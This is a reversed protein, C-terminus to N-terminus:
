FSELTHNSHITEDISSTDCLINSVSPRPFNVLDVKLIKLSANRHLSNIFTQALQTNRYKLDLESINCNASELANAITQLQAITALAIRLRKLTQQAIISSNLLLM